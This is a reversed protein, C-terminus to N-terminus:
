CEKLSQSHQAIKKQPKQKNYVQLASLMYKEGRLVYKFFFFFDRTARSGIAMRQQFLSRVAAALSVLFSSTICSQGLTECSFSGYRM